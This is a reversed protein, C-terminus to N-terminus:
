VEMERFKRTIACYNRFHARGAIDNGNRKNEKALDLREQDSEPIELLGRTEHFVSATMIEEYISEQVKRMMASDFDEYNNLLLAM